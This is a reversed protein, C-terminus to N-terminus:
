KVVDGLVQRLIHRAEGSSTGVLNFRYRGGTSEVVLEQRSMNREHDYLDNVRVRRITAMPIFFSGPTQSLITEVPMTQYQRCIVNLWGMQASVQGLWGKGESKAENRAANIAENMMKQPVFALVLRHPTVVLNFTEFKLGLLGGQRQLGPVIGLIPESPATYVPQSPQPPAYQPPPTYPPQQPSPQPSQPVARGCM